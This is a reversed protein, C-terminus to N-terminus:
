LYFQRKTILCNFFISPWGIAHLQYDQLSSKVLLIRQFGFHFKAFDIVIMIPECLVIIFRIFTTMGECTPKFRGADPSYKQPLSAEVASLMVMRTREHAVKARLSPDGWRPAKPRRPFDPCRLAGQKRVPLVPAGCPM